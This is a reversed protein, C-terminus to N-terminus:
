DLGALRRVDLLRDLDDDSLQTAEAAIDRVPRDEELARRAVAAAADYGIAPALATALMANRALARAIGAENVTFGAITKDRLATCARTLLGIQELLNSAILPLMTCLQFRNDQAALAIVSDLGIVQACAMAVAEPIVPNVKGPMISSGAQLEPLRIEALGAAPGSAMWRLDNAIKLLALALVRLQGSLEAATDQSAIAARADEAPAFGVGTRRTLEDAFAAAFGPAANVGTGVATGGQAIRCLRVSTDDIRQRCVRLQAAWGGLEQGLTLPVADMLHTRGTKVIHATEAARADIGAALAAVAADLEPLALAASVHIATPIVDNSSQGLNVDDNPHVRRGLARSALTAIVENANMNSSTGSGTQFIDVPFQDDLEGAAVREAASEIAHALDPALMGLTGNVRAACAKILGLAHIFAPPMPRGGIGFNGLALETQRGYLRDDQEAM